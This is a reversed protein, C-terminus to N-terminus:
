RLFTSELVSGDRITLDPRVDRHIITGAADRYEFVIEYTGPSLELEGFYTRSPLFRSTRLDAAESVDVAVDTALGGLLSLLPNEVRANIERKAREAALGKVVTRTIGKLYILPRKVEYTAIAINEISEFLSLETWAGGDVQVLVSAVESGRPELYPLELKFHLGPPVGKWRIRDIEVEM